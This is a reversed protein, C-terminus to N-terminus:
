FVLVGIILTLVSFVLLEILHTGALMSFVEKPYALYEVFLYNPRSDYEAIFSITSAEVFFALSIFIALYVSFGWKGIQRLFSFTHFWPKFMFVPGFMIGLLIIDFRLGQLLIFGAGDAPAVRDWHIGILMLRSLSLAVLIGLALYSM